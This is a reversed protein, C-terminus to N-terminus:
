ANKNLDLLLGELTNETACDITGDLAREFTENTSEKYGNEGKLADTLANRFAGLYALDRFM